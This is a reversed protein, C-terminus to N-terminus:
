LPIGEKHINLFFQDINSEYDRSKTLVCSIIVDYKMGLEYQIQFTKDIENLYNSIDNLVVLVDIDSEDDFDGRAMSGFLIVEKLNDKHVSKLLGKFEKVIDIVDVSLVPM